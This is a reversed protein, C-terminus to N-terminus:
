RGMRYKGDQEVRLSPVCRFKEFSDFGEKLTRWFGLLSPQGAFDKELQWMGQEDLRAPFIHVPIRTQGASRAEVAMLYVEKIGDDTIPVCGITVCDGHIFIDGGLNGRVGLIRDSENPYNVRLSLHFNSVPNFGNIFYFGEPIQGDGQQRKPGLQGSTECVPYEKLLNLRDNNAQRVWVELVREQKFIRIFIERPPYLLGKQKFLEQMAPGKEAYADRVRPYRRQQIMFSQNSADQNALGIPLVLALALTRARLKKWSPKAERDTM